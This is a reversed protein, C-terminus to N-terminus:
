GGAVRLTEVAQLAIVKGKGGKGVKEDRSKKVVDFGRLYM